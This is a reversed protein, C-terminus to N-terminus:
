CHKPWACLACSVIVNKSTVKGFIRRNLNKESVSVAIFRKKFKTILL